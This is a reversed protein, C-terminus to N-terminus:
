AVAAEGEHLLMQDFHWVGHGKGVRRLQAVYESIKKIADGGYLADGKEAYDFETLPMLISLLKVKGGRKNQYEMLKEAHEREELSSEKFFKALGKLAVNDKDFYAFMAHYVYSVNYEVSPAQSSVWSLERPWPPKGLFFRLAASGIWPDGASTEPEVQDGSRRTACVLAPQRAESALPGRSQSRAKSDVRSISGSTRGQNHSRTPTQVSARDSNPAFAEVEEADKTKGVVIDFVKDQHTVVQHCLGYRLGQAFKRCRDRKIPVLSFGYKLLKLFEIKYESITMDGQVMDQFQHRRQSLYRERLFRSRFRQRETDSLWDEAETPAGGTLGSFTRVGNAILTQSIHVEPVVGGARVVRQILQLFQIGLNEDLVVRTFEPKTITAGRIPTTLGISAALPLDTPTALAPNDIPPPPDICIEDVQNAFRIARGRGRSVFRNLVSSRDLVPKVLSKSQVPVERPRVFRSSGPRATSRDPSGWTGTFHPRTSPRDGWHMWIALVVWM